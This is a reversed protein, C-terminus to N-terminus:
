NKTGSFTETITGAKLTLNISNNQISGTLTGSPDSYSLKIKGNGEDSLKVGPLTPIVQGSITMELNVSTDSVKIVECTGSAQGKGVVVWTGSYIGVADNVILSSPTDTDKECGFGIMILVFLLSLIQKNKM